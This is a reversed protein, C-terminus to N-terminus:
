GTSEFYIIHPQYQREGVGTGLALSMICIWSSAKMGRAVTNSEHFTVHGLCSM